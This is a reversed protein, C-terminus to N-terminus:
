LSFIPGQLSDALPSALLAIAEGIKMPDVSAARISETAQRSIGHSVGEDLSKNFLPTDVSGPCFNNVRIRHPALHRQLTMALGNLGGKSAGYPISGSSSTVGAPSGVLILTGKGQPIMIRCAARSVLFAGSLNVSIVSQWSDFSIERIDTGQERMIGAVHILVDIGQWTERISTFANEVESENSVDLCFVLPLNGDAELEDSLAMLGALDRDMLVLQAGAKALAHVTARGIGSAAGTVVVRRNSLQLADDSMM